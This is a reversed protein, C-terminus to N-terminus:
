NFLKTFCPKYNFTPIFDFEGINLITKLKKIVEEEQPRYYFIM